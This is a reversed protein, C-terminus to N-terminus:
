IREVLTVKNGCLDMANAIRELIDKKDMNVLLEEGIEKALEANEAEVCICPHAIPIFYVDYLKKDAM